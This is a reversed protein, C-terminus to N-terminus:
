TKTRRFGVCQIVASASHFRRLKESVIPPQASSFKMSTPTPQSMSAFAVMRTFTEAPVAIQSVFDKTQTQITKDSIHKLLETAVALAQGGKEKINQSFM